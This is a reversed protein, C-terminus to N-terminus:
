HWKSESRLKNPYAMRQREAALPALAQPQAPIPAADNPM